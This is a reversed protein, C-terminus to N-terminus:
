DDEEEDLAPLLKELHAVLTARELSAPPTCNALRELVAPLTAAQRLVAARTGSPLNDLDNTAM